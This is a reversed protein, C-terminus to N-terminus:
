WCGLHNILRYVMSVQPRNSKYLLESFARNEMPKGACYVMASQGILARASIQNNYRIIFLCFAWHYLVNARFKLQNEVKKFSYLGVSSCSERLKREKKCMLRSFHRIGSIAMAVPYERTRITDFQKGTVLQTVCAVNTM